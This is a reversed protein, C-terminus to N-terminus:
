NGGEELSANCLCRLVLQLSGLCMALGILPLLLRSLHWPYGPDFLPQGLTLVVVLAVITQRRM